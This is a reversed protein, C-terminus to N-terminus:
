ALWSSLIRTRERISSADNTGQLSLKDYELLEFTAAAIDKEASARNRAREENFEILKTRTFNSSRNRAVLDNFVLAFIPVSAQAILLPDRDVFIKSLDDLLNTIQKKLDRVYKTKGGKHQLTFADLIRKQFHQM